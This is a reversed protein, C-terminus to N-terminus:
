LVAIFPVTSNFVFPPIIHRSETLLSISALLFKDQNLVPYSAPDRRMSYDSLKPQRLTCPVLKIFLAIDIENLYRM